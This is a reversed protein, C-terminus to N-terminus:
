SPLTTRLHQSLPFPSTAATRRNLFLNDPSAIRSIGYRHWPGAHMPIRVPWQRCAGGEHFRNEGPAAISSHEAFEGYDKQASGFVSVQLRRASGSAPCPAAVNQEASTGNYTVSDCAGSGEKSSSREHVREKARPPRHFSSAAPITGAITIFLMV